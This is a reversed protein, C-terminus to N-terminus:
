KIKKLNKKTIKKTRKKGAVSRTVSTQQLTLMELEAPSLIKNKNRDKRPISNYIQSYETYIRKKLENIHKNKQILNAQDTLLIRYYDQYKQIKTYKTNNNQQTVTTPSTFTPNTLISPRSHAKLRRRITKKSNSATTGRLRSIAETRLGKTKLGLEKLEQLVTATSQTPM